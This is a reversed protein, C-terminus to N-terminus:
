FQQEKAKAIFHVVAIYRDLNHEEDYRLQKRIQSLKLLRLDHIADELPIKSSHPHPNENV